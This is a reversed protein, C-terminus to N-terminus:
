PQNQQKGPTETRSSGVRSPGEGGGGGELCKPHCCEAVTQAASQFSKAEQSNLLASTSKILKFLQSLQECIEMKKQAKQDCFKTDKLM